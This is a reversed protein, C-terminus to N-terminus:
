LHSALAPHDSRSWISRHYSSSVLPTRSLPTRASAAESCLAVAAASGLRDARPPPYPWRPPWSRKRRPASFQSLVRSDGRGSFIAWMMREGDSLVEGARLRNYDRRARMVLPVLLFGFQLPILVPVVALRLLHQIRSPSHNILAGVFHEEERGNRLAFELVKHHGSTLAQTPSALERLFQLSCLVAVVGSALLAALDIWRRQRILDLAYLAGIVIFCLAVYTSDGACAAFCIGATTAALVARKWTPRQVSDNATAQQCRSLCLILFAFSCCVVGAIHHPAFIIAGLFSPIRDELWWEMEPFIVRPRLFYGAIVPLIDVGM